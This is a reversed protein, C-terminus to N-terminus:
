GLTNVKRHRGTAFYGSLFDMIARVRPLHRLREHTILWVESPREIKPTFCKIVGPHDQFLFDSMLSIGLGSQIGTVLGAISSQRLVVAEDPINEEVWDMLPGSFLGREISIFSHKKLEAVNTPVGHAAAYNRSCYLSWVDNAVRKGVLENQEPPNGARVAVDAEGKTLDHIRDGTVIELRVNPYAEHFERLASVLFYSAFTENTALKVIGSLERCSAGAKANLQNISAEVEEATPRLEAGVETLMYGSQLKEFLQVGLAEELAAIRRAVTSQSVRLTKSAGLTTGTRTVELFFKLDNWDM